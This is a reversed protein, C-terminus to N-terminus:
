EARRPASPQGVTVFTLEGRPSNTKNLLNILYVLLRLAHRTMLQRASPRAAEISDLGLSLASPHDLKWGGAPTGIQGTM